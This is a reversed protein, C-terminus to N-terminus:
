YYSYTVLPFSPPEPSVADGDRVTGDENIGLPLAEGPEINRFGWSALMLSDVYDDFGKMPKERSRGEEDIEYEYAFLQDMCKKNESVEIDIKVEEREFRRKLESIMSAKLLQFKISSVGVLALDSEGFERGMEDMLDRNQFKFSNDTLIREPKYKKVRDLIMACLDLSKMGSRAVSDLLWLIGQDDMGLVTIATPNSYAWDVGVMVTLVRGMKRRDEEKDVQARYLLEHDFVTGGLAGFEGLMEIRFTNADYMLKAKEIAEKTIWPVQYCNWEFRAFKLSDAELWTRHFPHNMHNPTSSMVIKLSASTWTGGLAANILPPTIQCTEDFYIIDPRPGRSSKESATMVSVFAGSKFETRTFTPERALMVKLAETRNVMTSFYKYMYRAQEESGANITIKVRPILVLQMLIGLSCLWTKGGGRCCKIILGHVTPDLLERLYRKQFEYFGKFERGTQATETLVEFGVVDRFFLWPNAWYYLLKQELPLREVDGISSLEEVGLSLHYKTLIFKDIGIEGKSVMDSQRYVEMAVRRTTAEFLAYTENSSLGLSSQRYVNRLLPILPNTLIRGPPIESTDGQLAITGILKRRQLEGSDIGDKGGPRKQLERIKEKTLARRVM